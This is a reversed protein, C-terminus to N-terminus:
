KIFIQNKNIQRVSIASDAYNEQWYIMNAKKHGLIKSVKTKDVLVDINNSQTKDLVSNLRIKYRYAQVLEGFAPHYIGALVAGQERLGDDDQLGVRITNIAYKEFEDVIYAAQAVALDLHILKLKGKKHMDAFLTDAFIVLPYIRAVDPKLNCVQRVTLIISQWSQKPLGIMLQIGTQINAKKLLDIANSVCASDHGRNAVKLVEDDLSQVGLEVLDVKYHVLREVVSKDICDPRTSMRIGSILGQQRMNDALTLLTDQTNEELATFSGGYFALHKEQNKFYNLYINIQKKVTSINFESQRNIAKQNCFACRHPCGAYNIFVPIIKKM